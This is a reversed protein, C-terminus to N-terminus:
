REGSGFYSGENHKLGTGVWAGFCQPSKRKGRGLTVHEEDDDDTAERIAVVCGGGQGYYKEVNKYLTSISM